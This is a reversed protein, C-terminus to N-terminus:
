MATECEDIPQEVPIGVVSDEDTAVILAPSIRLFEVDGRGDLADAAGRLRVAGSDDTPLRHEAQPVEEAMIIALAPEGHLMLTTLGAFM